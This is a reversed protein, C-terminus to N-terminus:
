DTNFTYARFVHIPEKHRHHVIRRQVARACRLPKAGEVQSMPLSNTECAPVPLFGGGVLLVIGLLLFIIAPGSLSNTWVSNQPNTISQLHFRRCHFKQYKFFFKKSVANLKDINSSKAVFQYRTM